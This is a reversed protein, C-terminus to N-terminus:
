VNVVKSDKQVESYSIYKIFDLPFINKMAYRIQKKLERVKNFSRKIFDKKSESFFHSVIEIVFPGNLISQNALKQLHIVKIPQNRKFMFM